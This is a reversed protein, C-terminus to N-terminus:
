VNDDELVMDGLIGGSSVVGPDRIEMVRGLEALARLDREDIAQILTQSMSIVDGATDEAVRTMKILVGDLFNPSVRVYAEGM